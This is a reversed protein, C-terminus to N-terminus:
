AMKQPTAQPKMDVFMMMEQILTQVLSDHIYPLCKHYM